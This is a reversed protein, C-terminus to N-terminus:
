LLLSDLTYMKSRQVIEGEFGAKLLFSVSLALGEDLRFTKRIFDVAGNYEAMAYQNQLVFCSFFFCQLILFHARIVSHSHKFSYLLDLSRKLVSVKKGKEINLFVKGLFRDKSM